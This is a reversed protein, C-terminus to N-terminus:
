ISCSKTPSYRQAFGIGMGGFDVIDLKGDRNIDRGGCPGYNEKTDSCKQKGDNYIKAFEAFDYITFFEDNNVDAKGCVIATVVGTPSVTASPTSSLGVTTIPTVATSTTPTASVVPTNSPLTVSTDQAKLMAKHANIRKGTVTKGSLSPLADGTDLIMSKVQVTTLGPKYGWILAALGAVHPSAMSTGPYYDYEEGQVYKHIIVDDVACGAYANDTADSIWNFRLKFNSTLVEEPISLPADEFFTVFLGELPNPYGMYSEDIKFSKTYDLRDKANIFNVGDKSYMIQLYDLWKESTVRPQTDCYLFFGLSASKTNLDITGTTISTDANNDYPKGASHAYLMNGWILHNVVGWKNNTGSKTWGSPVEGSQVQNFDQGMREIKPITSLINNGPAAVDVSTLGYDSFSTLNDNQDTAAVCIINASNYDCPYGAKNVESHNNSSNGAAAVFLGPFAAITQGLLEDNFKGGWSANIVKAGNHRAFNIAKISDITLMSTRLAMIKSNPAVGIMGKGNNKPASATGAVHTGHDSSGPLPTKDYDDFDYGHKCGGLQKGEHDKCNTGDWMNGILDPHNYDVGSDVVAVVIQANTGENISWAEPADIDADATGAIKNVVQGTNELGWLDARMPDNSNIAMTKYIYNLQVVEVAPDKILDKMAEGLDGQVSLLQINDEPLSDLEELEYKDILQEAQARGNAKNMDIRSDAYQVIVQGPIYDEGAVGETLLADIKQAEIDITDQERWLLAGSLIIVFVIFVMLSFFIIAKSKM